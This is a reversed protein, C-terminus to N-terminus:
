VLCGSKLTNIYCEWRKMFKQIHQKKATFLIYVLFFSECKLPKIILVIGEFYYNLFLIMELNQNLLLLM